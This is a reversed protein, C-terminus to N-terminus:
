EQLNEIVSNFNYDEPRYYADFILHDERYMVPIGTKRLGNMVTECNEENMMAFSELRFLVKSDGLTEAGNEIEIDTDPDKVVQDLVSSLIDKQSNNSVIFFYDNDPDTLVYIPDAQGYWATEIGKDQLAKEIDSIQASKEKLKTSFKSIYAELFDNEEFLGLESRLEHYKLSNDAKDRAKYVSAIRRSLIGFYKRIEKGAENINEMLRSELAIKGYKLVTKELAKTQVVTAHHKKVYSIMTSISLGFDMSSPDAAKRESERLDMLKDTITEIISYDQELESNKQETKTFDYDADGSWTKLASITKTAENLSNSIEERTNIQDFLIWSSVDEIEDVIEKHLDEVLQIGKEVVLNTYSDFRSKTEARIDRPKNKALEHMEQLKTELSM